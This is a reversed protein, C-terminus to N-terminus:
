RRWYFRGILSALKLSLSKRQIIHKDFAQLPGDAYKWYLKDVVRPPKGVFSGRLYSRIWPKGDGVAHPLIPYGNFGMVDPGLTTISGQWHMLALNLADQDIAMFPNSRGDKRWTVIEGQVHLPCNIDENDEILKQWLALFGKDSRLISLFGGNFYLDLSHNTKLGTIELWQRRTPHQAPMWWNVDACAAPGGECWSLIWPCPADVVVDPDIYTIATCEPLSELVQLMFAPKYNTFHTRTNLEVLHVKASEQAMAILLHQPLLHRDRYGVVFQGAFGNRILSNYLVCAGYFHGREALTVVCHM